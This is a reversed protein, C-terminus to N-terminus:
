TVQSMASSLLDAEERNARPGAMELELNMIPIRRTQRIQGMERSPQLQVLEAVQSSAQVAAEVATMKATQEAVAAESIAAVEAPVLAAIQWGGESAELEAMVLIAKAFIALEVLAALNRTPVAV